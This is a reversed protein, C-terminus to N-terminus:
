AVQAMIHLLLPIKKKQCREKTKKVKSNTKKLAMIERIFPDEQAAQIDEITFVAVM